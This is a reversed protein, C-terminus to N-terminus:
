ARPPPTPPQWGRGQRVPPVMATLLAHGVLAVELVSEPPALQACTTTCVAAICKSGKDCCPCPMDTSSKMTGPAIDDMAAVATAAIVNAAVLPSLALGVSVLAVILLRFMRMRKM